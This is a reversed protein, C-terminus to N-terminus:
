AKASSSGFRRIIRRAADAKPICKDMSLKQLYKHAQEESMECHEILLAKARSILEKEGINVSMMM